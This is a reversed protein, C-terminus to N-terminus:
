WGRGSSGRANNSMKSPSFITGGGRSAFDNMMAETRVRKARRSQDDYKETFGVNQVLRHAHVVVHAVDDSNFGRRDGKRPNTIKGDIGMDLSEIEYLASAPGSLKDPEVMDFDEGEEPPLLKVRGSMADRYFQIFHKDTTSTEESPIGLNRINQILQVSNWQDFEVKSITQSKSLDRVLDYIGDFWVETGIQPVIRIIWDFVTIIRGEDDLEGHACAGAFADFRAGPDFTIVRPTGNRVLQAEIMKVGLYSRGSQEETWGDIRFTATPKLNWDIVNDEFLNKDQILPSAAMPPLAGFDRMTGVPDKIFAEDFLYRPMYPNFDWVARHMSYMRPTREADKLLRMSKDHISTPSSVSLMFGAWRLGLKRIEVMPRITNLSAELGRYIEDAGMGSSTDKMRGVEDAGGVLRCRGVITGSSAAYANAVLKVCGNDIKADNDTYDWRQMGIPTDQLKAQLKVWPVYRQFWPSAARLNKYAQWMSEETTKLSSAVFAMDMQTTEAIGFYNQLGRNNKQRHAITLFVHEMYTILMGATFTKGGRMGSVLHATNHGVMLGDAEFEARTTNCKPCADADLDPRYRLLIESEIQMRTADIMNKSGRNCIPCRLEFTDRVFEYSGWFPPREGVHENEIGEITAPQNLFERGVIWEFANPARQILFERETDNDRAHVIGMNVADAISEAFKRSSPAALPNVIASKASARPSPM